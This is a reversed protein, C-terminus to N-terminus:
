DEILSPLSTTMRVAGALALPFHQIRLLAPPPLASEVSPDEAPVALLQAAPQVEARLAVVAVAPHVALVAGACVAAVGLVEAPTELEALALHGGAVAVGVAVGVAVAPQLVGLEALAMSPAAAAGAMAELAALPLLLEACALTPQALEQPAASPQGM